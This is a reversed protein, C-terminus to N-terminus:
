VSVSVRGAGLDTGTVHSSFVNAEEQCNDATRTPHCSEGNFAIWISQTLRMMSVKADSARAVSSGVSSSSSRFGYPRVLGSTERVIIFFM